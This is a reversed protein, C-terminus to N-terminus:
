TESEVIEVNFPRPDPFRGNLAAVVVNGLDDIKIAM